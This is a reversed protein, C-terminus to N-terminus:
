QCQQSSPRPFLGHQLPDVAPTTGQNSIRAILQPITEDPHQEALYAFYALGVPNAFSSVAPWEPGAAGLGLSSTPFFAPPTRVEFPGTYGVNVILDLCGFALRAAPTLYRADTSGEVPLDTGTYAAAFIRLRGPFVTCDTLFDPDGAHLTHDAGTGAEFMVVPRPQGAVTTSLGALARLLNLYAAQIRDLIQEAPAAGCRVEFFQAIQSRTTGWSLHIYNIAYQQIVSTLSQETQVLQAELHQLAAERTAPDNAGCIQPDNLPYDLLAESVVFQARPIRDELFPLIDMGHGTWNPITTTFKTAFPAAVDIEESALPGEFQDAAQFVSLADRAIPLTVDTSHYTGDADVTLYGLTRSQYRTAAVTVIAEDILLIRAGESAPSPTAPVPQFSVLECAAGPCPSGTITTMLADRLAALKAARAPDPALAATPTGTATPCGTMADDPTAGDDGCGTGAAVLSLVFTLSRARDVV